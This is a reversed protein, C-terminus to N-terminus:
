MGGVGGEDVCSLERKFSFFWCESGAVVSFTVFFIGLADVLSDITDIPFSNAM